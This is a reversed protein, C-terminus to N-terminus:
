SSSSMQCSYCIDNFCDNMLAGDRVLCGLERINVHRSHASLYPYEVSLVMSGRSERMALLLLRPACPSTLM